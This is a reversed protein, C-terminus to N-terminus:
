TRPWTPYTSTFNGANGEDAVTQRLRATRSEYLDFFNGLRREEGDEIVVASGDPDVFFYSGSRTSNRYVRLEVGRNAAAKACREVTDEFEAPDLMLSERNDAGYTTPSM